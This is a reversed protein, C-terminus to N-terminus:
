EESKPGSEKVLGAVLRRLWHVCLYVSHAEEATSYTGLQFLKGDLRMQAVFGLKTEHVGKLHGSRSQSLNHNFSNQQVTVVRLNKKRNDLTDHNIHDVIM